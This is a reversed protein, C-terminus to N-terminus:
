SNKIIVREMADAVDECSDLVNELSKYIEQWKVVELVNKEEAFLEKMSCRFLEDGEEEIHNIEVILTALTKSKRFNKFEVAATVLASCCKTILNVMEKARPTACKISMMDLMIAVDDIVDITGEIYRSIEIIDEREIPTIFSRNLHYYVQHYLEDGDHELLHIADSKVRADDLNDMLEDLAEAARNSIAAAKIFLDFYDAEKSKIAM